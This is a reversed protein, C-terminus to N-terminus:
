REVTAALLGIVVENALARVTLSRLEKTPDLPLALVTASGGPIEAKTRNFDAPTTVRVKGTKLDVRIPTPEPRSFARGDIFYDQDIPWWTTPNHLPLRATSGDAYTAVIEGNDLRSQMWNTSGALLLHVRRARGALPATLERPYNDWQSVFAINHADGPGPTAFSVGSPLAFRGGNQASAARLGTDDIEATANVHGAWAGIGQAPLALSVHPSRPSRYKGPAFIATVRDNFLPALDIPEIRAGAAPPPPAVFAAIDAPPAPPFAPAPSPTVADGSWRVTIEFTNAAPATALIRPADRWGPAPTTAVPTGNVTIEAGAARRPLALRLAAPRAFRTSLRYTDTNGNRTFELGVAPHRLTARDWASPLGPTFALEGALLDPQLGFLGEILARSFVGSGDAFDRQSEGRYADLYNMSGINGPCVGMYLSALLSARTLDYAADARGAQWFGLATHLNEGMVVNNISWSYPMWNSSAYMSLGDPVGPGRVALRPLEREVYRTMSWAESPTVLGADMTHYFSWLGASPHVLQRGLLDKFEAFMGRDPQWLLERMARAILTVEKEYPAPDAGVLRALRAAMLNHWHNYASSYAVGGGHYQMDDSAWICAYAEYLPLKDPGFERRFLRREWVLHRQIVPWVQRAYDLDGTWMLHRFLADIYVLNMDYHNFSMAGPSHLATRSRALNTAEEPPPLVAPIEGIKQQGAWYTFHRRARDHWGLADNAYPGRWGLLKQRWAVAGHMVAGEKEDWVADAALNLAGVAADLFPDPTSVTVQNQIRIRKAEAEAFRAPLSAADAPAVGESAREIWLYAPNDGSLPLRGALVPLEPPNSIRSELASAFPAAWTDAPVVVLRSAPATVGHLTARPAKLTFAGDAALTFTQDKANAPSFQFYEGIPVRETGIDGDRKGRQGNAGGYAWGLSLPGALGRAAVRVVLGEREACPLSDIVLSASPGLSPDTIEHRLAGPRYRTVIRAAEHLWRVSGDAAVLGLRLNGGRGPLYLSWEPRDGADVRFATNTGYLPRNFFEGGNEIVFDGHDPTYRLPREWERPREAGFGGHTASSPPPVIDEARVPTFVFALSVTFAIRRLSSPLALM